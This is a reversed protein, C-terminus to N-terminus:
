CKLEVALYLPYTGSTLCTDLPEIVHDDEVAMYLVCSCRLPCAIGFCSPAPVIEAQQQSSQSKQNM